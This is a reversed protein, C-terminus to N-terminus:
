GAMGAFEERLREQEKRRDDIKARRSNHKTAAEARLIESMSDGVNLEAISWEEVDGFGSCDCENPSPMEEPAPMNALWAEIRAVPVCAIFSEESSIAYGDEVDAEDGAGSVGEDDGEDRSEQDYPEVAGAEIM